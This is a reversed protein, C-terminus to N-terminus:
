GHSPHFPHFPFTILNPQKFFRSDFYSTQVQITEKEWFHFQLDLQEDQLCHKLSEYFLISYNPFTKVKQILEEKYSPALGYM